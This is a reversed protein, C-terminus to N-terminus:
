LKDGITRTVRDISIFTINEFELNDLLVNRKYTIRGLKITEVRDNDETM